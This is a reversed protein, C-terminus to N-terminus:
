GKIISFLSEGTLYQLSEVRLLYLGENTRNFLDNLASKLRKIQNDCQYFAWLCVLILLGLAKKLPNAEELWSSGGFWFIAGM